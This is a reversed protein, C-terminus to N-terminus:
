DCNPLLIPVSLAKHDTNADQCSDETIDPQLAVTAEPTNLQPVNHM